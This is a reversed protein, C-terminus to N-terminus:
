PTYVGLRHLPHCVAIRGFGDLTREGVGHVALRTLIEIARPEDKMDLLVSTGKKALLIPQRDKWNGWERSTCYGSYLQTEAFVKEVKLADNTDCFLAKQWIDLYEDDPLINQAGEIDLVADSLFLLSAKKAAHLKEQFTHIDATVQEANIQPEDNLSLIRMKGYGSSVYKGCYIVKGEQLMGTDCDDIVASFVTGRPVAKVAFLKGDESTHTDYNIATHTTLVTRLKIKEYRDGNPRLFGKASEMRKLGSECDVCLLRGNQVITDQLRHECGKTKCVKATFPAPISDKQYAFSFYMKSFARCIMRKPCDKCLGDPDKEEIFYLEGNKSKRNALPCELLIENAFAARLVSGRIFPESELFNDTVRVGGCMLPNLLEFEVKRRV